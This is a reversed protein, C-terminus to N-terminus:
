VSVETVTGQVIMEATPKEGVANATLVGNDNVINMAIVGDDVMQQIVVADPQLDVKSNATIGDISIVQTYPSADGVWDTTLTISVIRQKASFLTDSETKSYVDYKPAGVKKVAGTKPDKYKLVSM